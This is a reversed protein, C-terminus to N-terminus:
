VQPTSSTSRAARGRRDLLDERELTALIELIESRAQTLLDRASPGFGFGLQDGRSRQLMPQPTPALAAVSSAPAEESSAPEGTLAVIEEDRATLAPGPVLTTPADKSHAAPVVPEAEVDVRAVDGSREALEKSMAASLEPQELGHLELVVAREPPRQKPAQTGNSGRLARRAGAITFGQVHLLERIALLTEVDRRRYQRHGSRSKQPRVQSFQTEWYRLVHPEVGVLKAVEGIKFYKKEPLEVRRVVAWVAATDEKKSRTM